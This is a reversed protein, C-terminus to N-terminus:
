EERAYIEYNVVSQAEAKARQSQIVQTPLSAAPQRVGSATLNRSDLSPSNQMQSKTQTLNFGKLNKWMSSLLGKKEVGNSNLQTVVSGATKGKV